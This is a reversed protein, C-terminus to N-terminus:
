ETTLNKEINKEMAKLQREILNSEAQLSTKKVGKAMSGGKISSHEEYTKIEVINKKLARRVDGIGVVTAKEEEDNLM